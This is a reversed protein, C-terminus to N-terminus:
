TSSEGHRSKGELAEIIDRLAKEWPKCSLPPNNEGYELAIRLAADLKDYHADPFLKMDDLKANIKDTDTLKKEESM